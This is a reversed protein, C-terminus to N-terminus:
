RTKAFRVAAAFPLGLDATLAQVLGLHVLGEFSVRRSIGQRERTVGPLEHRSLINDVWKTPCELAVAVTAVHYSRM